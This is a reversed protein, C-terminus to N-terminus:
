DFKIVIKRSTEAIAVIWHWIWHVKDCRLIGKQSFLSRLSFRYVSKKDKIIEIDLFSLKNNTEKKSTFKINKHCLNVYNLFLKLQEEKRFFVLIGDM